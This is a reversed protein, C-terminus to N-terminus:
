EVMVVVARNEAEPMGDATERLLAEQGVGTGLLRDPRIGGALLAQEVSSARRRSLKKNYAANGSSDTHGVLRLKLYRCRWDSLIQDAVARAEADLGSENLGFYLVYRRPPEPIPEKMAITMGEASVGLSLGTTKSELEMGAGTNKNELTLTGGGKIVTAAVDTASYEGPFEALSRLGKVYGRGELKKVGLAVGGGFGKVTFGYRCDDGLDQLTITGEGEQGAFGVQVSETVLEVRALGADQALAAASSIAFPLAAAFCKLSRSESMKM